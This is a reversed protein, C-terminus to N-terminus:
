ERRTLGMRVALSVLHTAKHVGFKKMLRGKHTEVTKVSRGMEEACQSATLGAALLELVQLERKSLVPAAPLKAGSAWPGGRGRDLLAQAAPCYAPGGAETGWLVRLLGEAPSNLTWYGAAGMRAAAAVHARTAVADLLVVRPVQALGLLGRAAALGRGDQEDLCILAADPRLRTATEVATDLGETVLTGCINGRLFPVLMALWVGGDCGLLLLRERRDPGTSDLM